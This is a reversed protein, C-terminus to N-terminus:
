PPGSRFRDIQRRDRKTPRGAGRERRGVPALRDWWPREDDAGNGPTPTLDRYCTTAIPAGVRKDLLREVRCATLRPHDRLHVVDGVTVLRSAKVRDDGVQVLGVACARTAATRTPYLRVAWLWKDVRVSAPGDAPTPPTPPTPAGSATM